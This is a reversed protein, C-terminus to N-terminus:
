SRSSTRSGRGERRPAAEDRVRRGDARPVGRSLLDQVAREGDRLQRIGPQLHLPPGQLARRLLGLDQGFAGVPLGDRGRARDACSARCPQDCRGGGLEQALRHEACPPLHPAGRRRDLREVGRQDGARPQRRAHADGGGHLRRPGPDRSRARRPQLQERARHCGPDRAGQDDGDPCRARDAAQTRRRDGQAVPLRRRRPHRGPQRLSPGVRGCALHRQLRALPDHTGINFAAQVPDLEFSTGPVRAGGMMTAGPVVPGLLKTCAPYKLAQFGCALTDMLCYFATEYAVDSKSRTTAFTARSTSWSRTRIRGGPRSTIM